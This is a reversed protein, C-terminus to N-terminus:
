VRERCSARGIENGVAIFRVQVRAQEVAEKKKDYATAISGATQAGNVIRVDYCNFYGAEKSKGGVMKPSIERCIVTIGNNFHWFRRPDNLLTTQLGANVETDAGLFMRINQSVM